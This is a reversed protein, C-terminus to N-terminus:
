LVKAGTLYFFSILYLFKHICSKYHHEDNAIKEYCELVGDFDVFRCSGKEQTHNHPYEKDESGICKGKYNFFSGLMAVGTVEAVKDVGLNKVVHTFNGCSKEEEDTSHGDYLQDIHVSTKCDNGIADCRTALLFKQPNKTKYGEEHRSDEVVKGCRRKVQFVNTLREKVWYWDYRYKKINSARLMTAFPETAFLVIAGNDKIIRNYEKWLEDFPLVSDWKLPTTGYPPDCLILDVSKSPIDKMKTLCDENYLEVM